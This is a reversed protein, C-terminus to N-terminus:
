HINSHNCTGSNSLFSSPILPKVYSHHLSLASINAIVKASEINNSLSDTKISYKFANKFIRYILIFIHFLPNLTFSYKLVTRLAYGIPCEPVLHVTLTIHLIVYTIHVIKNTRQTEKSHQIKKKRKMQKRRKKLLLTSNQLNPLLSLLAKTTLHRLLCSQNQPKAFAGKKNAASVTLPCAQPISQRGREM